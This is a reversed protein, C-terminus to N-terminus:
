LSGNYFNENLFKTAEEASEFSFGSKGSETNKFEELITKEYIEKDYKKVLWEVTQGLNRCNEKSLVKLRELVRPQVRIAIGKAM